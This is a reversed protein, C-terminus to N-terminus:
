KPYIKKVIKKDNASLMNNWKVEYGNKTLEKPIAYMMISKTDVASGNMLSGNYKEFVQDDVDQESWGQRSYYAYVM